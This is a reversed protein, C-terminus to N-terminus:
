GVTNSQNSNWILIQFIELKLNLSLIEDKIFSITLSETTETIIRSM